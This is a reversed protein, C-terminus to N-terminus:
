RLAEKKIQPFLEKVAVLEEPRFKELVFKDAPIKDRMETRVGIRVRFFEQTGLLDIISQVGNNGAARSSATTKIKGLDVDIDDHLVVLDDKDLKWFNLAAVVAEGSLNMFTQPKLLVYESSKAMLSRTKKHESWELGLEAAIYDIALFGANHRTLEYQKGPNGLGVILIM